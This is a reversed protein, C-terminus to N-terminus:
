RCLQEGTRLRGGCGRTLAAEDLVMTDECSCAFVTRPRTSDM